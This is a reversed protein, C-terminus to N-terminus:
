RANSKYPRTVTTPAASKQLQDVVQRLSKNGPELALEAQAIHLAASRKGQSELSDILGLLVDSSRTGSELIVRYEAEAETARGREQLLLALNYHASSEHPDIGIARRYAQEAAEPRKLDDYVNGLHIEADASHADLALSEKLRAEADNLRNEGALYAGYAALTVAKERKEGTASESELLYIFDAESIEGSVKGRWEPNDYIRMIRSQMQKELLDHRQNGALETARNFAQEATAFHGSQLLREGIAAYHEVAARTKYRDWQDQLSPILFALLVVLASSAGAIFPRARTWFTAHKASNMERALEAAMLRRLEADSKLLNVLHDPESM